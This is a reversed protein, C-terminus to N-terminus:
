TLRKIPELFIHKEAWGFTGIKMNFMFCFIESASERKCGLSFIQLKERCLLIELLISCVKLKALNVYKEIKM